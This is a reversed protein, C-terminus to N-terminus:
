KEKRSNIAVLAIDGIIYAIYTAIVASITYMYHASSLGLAGHLLTWGYAIAIVMFIIISGIAIRTLRDKM